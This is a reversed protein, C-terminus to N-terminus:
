NRLFVRKFVKSVILALTNYIKWFLNKHKFIEQFSKDFEFLNLIVLECNKCFYIILGRSEVEVFTKQNCVPCIYDPSVYNNFINIQNLEKRLKPSFYQKPVKQRAKAIIEFFKSKNLHAYKCKTCVKIPIGYYSENIMDNNCNFCKM